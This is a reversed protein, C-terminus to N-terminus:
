ILSRDPQVLHLGALKYRWAPEEFHCLDRKYYAGVSDGLPDLGFRWALAYMKQWQVLPTNWLLAGSPSMPVIDLAVSAPAGNITVVNHPSGGPQADTVVAQDDVVVWVGEDRRFERGQQYMKHQEMISRWTYVVFMTHGLDKKIAALFELAPERLFEAMFSLRELRQNM